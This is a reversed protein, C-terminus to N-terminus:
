SVEYRIPKQISNLDTEFQLEPNIASKILELSLYCTLDSHFIGMYEQEFSLSDMNRRISDIHPLLDPCQEYSIFKRAYDPYKNEVNHYVDYFLGSGGFPTSSLVLTGGRSIMPLVANMIEVDSGDLFFSVEDAFVYQACYTRITPASNPLALIRGQNTFLIESKNHESIKNKIDPFDEALGAYWSDIHVMINRSQRDSASVIICTKGQMAKFLCFGAIFYSVGVQRSKCLCVFQNKEILNYLEKQYDYLGRGRLKHCLSDLTELESPM